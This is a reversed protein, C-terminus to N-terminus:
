RRKTHFPKKTRVNFCQSAKRAYLQMTVYHVEELLFSLNRLVRSDGVHEADIMCGLKLEHGHGHM